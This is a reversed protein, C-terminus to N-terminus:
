LDIRRIGTSRPPTSAELVQAETKQRGRKQLSRSRTLPTIEVARPRPGRYSEAPTRRRRPATPTPRRGTQCSSGGRGAVTRAQRRPTRPAPARLRGNEAFTHGTLASLHGKPRPSGTLPPKHCGQVRQLVPSSEAEEIKPGTKKRVEIISVTKGIDETERFPHM